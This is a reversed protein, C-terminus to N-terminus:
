ELNFSLNENLILHGVVSGMDMESSVKGPLMSGQAWVSDLKEVFWNM